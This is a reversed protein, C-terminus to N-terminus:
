QLMLGYGLVNSVNTDPQMRAMAHAARRCANHPAGPAAAACSHATHLFSRASCPQSAALLAGPGAARAGPPQQGTHM